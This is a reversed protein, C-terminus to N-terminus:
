KIKKGIVFFLGGDSGINTFLSFIESTIRTLYDGKKQKVFIDKVENPYSKPVSSIFEVNNQEFWSIVESLTHTTEVPHLYQDNIWAKETLKSKKIKNRLVPDFFKVYKKGLIRFFFRRIITRLRSFRNYLGVIIYGDKKLYKLIKKFGYYADKTHHLTGSSFVLDFYDERFTTEFLDAHVFEVNEINNKECFKKGILLSGLTADMAFVENNSGSAFYISAQSTGSGVELIKKKYNFKNKINRLFNNSNGKKLIVSKDYKDEYNSFPNPTYFKEIKLATKDNILYSNIGENIKYNNLLPTLSNKKKNTKKSLIFNGCILYDLDSLLFCNFADKVTNVIPEDKVNFSTNILIPVNTKKYFNKILNYFIKNKNKDVTQIRSSYDVHTVAPVESLRLKLKDFGSIKEDIQFRKNNKINDVLLMYPSETNTSFWENLNEKLIAAAFPRFSERFKIKLNLKKQMEPDRPDALISRNGLARPGFEMKGQFWGITQQESILNATKDILEETDNVFEYNAGIEDLDRKIEENSFEPGLCSFDSEYQNKLYELNIESKFIDSNFIFSLIAGLAGGADGAAPQIWIKEFIKLKDLKGNAVCNLAVGGALCLNKSGTIKKLNLCIKIIAEELVAQISSALDMHETTIEDADPDRVKISFLKSFKKNTMELGTAYDFYDQNLKFSGDNKLDILNQLIIDKYKPNGYPALGMLKYEGENVKFGCFYTFASYLLGLSHPFNIDQLFNINTDKGHALSTTTWEGVADLTLIAAESFPSLYFTSAAHSLHHQSFFIKKENSFRQDIEKLYKIISTKQFIKDKAWLPMSKKFSSFGKPANVLYTDLLREFKLLPKEYFVIADFDNIQLKFKKLLFIISKCPFSSDNKKRSFREEQTAFEIKNKNFYAIASDHYFCSIGLIKM